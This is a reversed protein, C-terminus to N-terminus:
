KKYSGAMLKMLTKNARKTYLIKAGFIYFSHNPNYNKQGWFKTGHIRVYFM